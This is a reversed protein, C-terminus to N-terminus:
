LMFCWISGIRLSNVSPLSHWPFWHHLIVPPRPMLKGKVISTIGEANLEYTSINGRMARQLGSVNQAGYSHKPFLKFVYVRPYLLAILLHEPFTLVQLQWPVPGIWLQNTLSHKPPKEGTKKLEELCIYYTSIFTQNDTTKVGTPELLKGDFLQHAPHYKTLILWQANPLDHLPIKTVKNEIVTCEQACIGCVDMEIAASSTM